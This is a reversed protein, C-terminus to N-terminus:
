HDDVYLAGQMVPGSTPGDSGSAPEPTMGAYEYHQMPLPTYFVFEASGTADPRILGGSIRTEDRVLWLQYVQDEALPPLNSVRLVGINEDPNCLIVGSVDRYEPRINNDDDRGGAMPFSSIEGEAFLNLLAVQATARTELANQEDRLDLLQTLMFLNLALLLLVAAISRLTRAFRPMLVKQPVAPEASAFAQGAHDSTTITAPESATSAAANMLQDRLHAPPSVHPVSYLFAERLIEYDALAVAEDPYKQLLSRVLATDEQDTIGLAYAPLLERLKELEPNTSNPSPTYDDM